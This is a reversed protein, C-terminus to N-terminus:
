APKDAKDAKKAQPAEAAAPSAASSSDCGSLAAGLVLSATLGWAMAPVRGSWKSNRRVVQNDM